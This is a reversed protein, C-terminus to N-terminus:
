RKKKLPKSHPLGLWAKFSEMERLQEARRDVRRRSKHKSTFRKAHLQLFLSKYAEKDVPIMNTDMYTVVDQARQFYAGKVFTVLFFDLMEKEMKVGQVGAKDESALRIELWLSLLEAVKHNVFYGRALHLYTMGTPRVGSQVMKKVTKRAEFMMNKRALNEVVLNWSSIGVKLNPCKNVEEVVKLMSSAKREKAYAHLLPEYVLESPPFGMSIMERLSEFAAENDGFRIHAAIFPTYSRENPAVFAAKIEDMIVQAKSIQGTSCYGQLISNYAAIELPFGRSATHLGWIVGGQTVHNSLAESRKLGILLRSADQVQGNRLLAKVLDTYINIDPKVSERWDWKSGKQGKELQDVGTEGEPEMSLVLKEAESLQGAAVFGAVISRVTSLKPEVGAERMRDPIERLMEVRGAKAYLKALSDFSASDACNGFLSMLQFLREAQDVFGVNACISLAVNFASTDPKMQVICSKSARLPLPASVRSSPEEMEWIGSELKVAGANRETLSPGTFHRCIEYFLDLAVSAKDPVTGIRSIIASWVSVSPFFGLRIMLTITSCAYSTMRAEAYALSLLSLSSHDLLDTRRVNGRHSLQVILRSFSERSALLGRKRLVELVQLAEETRREQVNRLLKSTLEANSIELLAATSTSPSLPNSSSLSLTRFRM